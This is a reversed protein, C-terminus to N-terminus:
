EEKIVAPGLRACGSLSAGDLDLDASYAYYAESMGDTCDGREIEYTLEFGDGTSITMPASRFTLGQLPAVTGGGITIPDSGMEEFTTGDESGITLSWFPETGSIRVAYGTDFECGQGGAFAYTLADLHDAEAGVEDLGEVYVDGMQYDLQEQVVEVAQSSAALPEWGEGGCPRFEPTGNSQRVEGRVFTYEPEQEVTTGPEPAPEAESEPEEPACAALAVALCALGAIWFSKEINM